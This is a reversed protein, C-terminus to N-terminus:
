KPPILALFPKVLIRHGIIIAPGNAGFWDNESPPDVYFRYDYKGLPLTFPGTAIKVPKMSEVLDISGTINEKVNEKKDLIQINWNLNVLSHNELNILLITIGNGGHLFFTVHPSDAKVNLPGVMILLFTAICLIVFLKLKKM